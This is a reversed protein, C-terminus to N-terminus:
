RHRSRRSSRLRSSASLPPVASAASTRRPSAPRDLARSSLPRRRDPRADRPDAPPSPRCPSPRRCSGGSRADREVVRDDRQPGVPMAVIVLRARYLYHHGAGGASMGAQCGCMPLLARRSRSPWAPSLGPRDAATTMHPVHPSVPKSAGDICIGHVDVLSARDRGSAPSRARSVRTGRCAPRDPPRNCRCRGSDSSPARGISRRSAASVPISSASATATSSSFNSTTRAINWPKSQM